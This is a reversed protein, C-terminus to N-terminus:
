NTQISNSVAKYNNNEIFDIEYDIIRKFNDLTSLQEFKYPSSWSNHTGDTRRSFYFHGNQNQKRILVLTRFSGDLLNVFQFEYEYELETWTYVAWKGIQVGVLKHLNKITLIM